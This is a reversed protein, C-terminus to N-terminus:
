KGSWASLFFQQDAGKGGNRYANMSLVWAILEDKVMSAGRPNERLIPVLAEVTFDDVALRGLVPRQPKKPQDGSPKKKWEKLDAEYVELDAEYEEMKTQWQAHLEEEIDALPEVVLELAPTKASGPVGVVGAYVSARQKHSEKVALERAAGLVGGAVVAVPVALYDPPCPLAAAPDPVFQQLVEPFVDLPFPMVSPIESLSVPEGWAGPSSSATPSPLPGARDLAEQFRHRFEERDPHQLHLESVDKVGLHVVRADGR